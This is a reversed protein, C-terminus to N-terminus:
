AEIRYFSQPVLLPGAPGLLTTVRFYHANFAAGRDEEGTTNPSARLPKEGCLVCLFVPSFPSEYIDSQM